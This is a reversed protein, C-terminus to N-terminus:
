GGNPFSNTIEEENLIEPSIGPFLFSKDDELKLIEEQSMSASKTIPSVYDTEDVESYAKLGERINRKTVTETPIYLEFYRSGLNVTSFDLEDGRVGGLMPETRYVYSLLEQTEHDAWIKLLGDIMSRISFGVTEPLDQSDEVKFLKGRKGEKTEFEEKGLNFGVSHCIEPLTQAYPGYHYFIWSLDTLTKGYRRYHELDILYLFKVLRITTTYGGLDAVQDVIYLILSAIERNNM